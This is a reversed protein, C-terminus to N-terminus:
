AAEKQRIADTLQAMAATLADLPAEDQGSECAPAYIIRADPGARLAALSARALLAGIDTTVRTPCLRSLKRAARRRDGTMFVANPACGEAGIFAAAGPDLAPGAIWIVPGRTSLAEIADRSTTASSWDLLLIPGLSAVPRGHGAIGEFGSLLDRLREPAYNLGRLVAWAMALAGQPAYELAPAAGLPAMQRPPGNLGDFLTGGRAFVGGALAQRGSTLIARDTAAMALRRAPAHDADLIVPGSTRGILAKLAASEEEAIDGVAILDPAPALAAATEVAVLCVAGRAASAAEAQLDPGICDAGSQALLAKVIQAAQAAGGGIFACVTLGQRCATEVMLSAPCRVPIDLSRALEVTGISVDEGLMGGDGAVLLALDSWDRTSPDELRLGEAQAANRRAEDEDWVTVQAGGASLARAAALGEKTLRLVAVRRGAYARVPIM